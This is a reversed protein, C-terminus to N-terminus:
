GCNSTASRWKKGSPGTPPPKSKENHSSHHTTAQSSKISNPLATKPKPTAKTSLSGKEVQGNPLQLLRQFFAPAATTPYGAAVLLRLGEIDAQEEQSRSYSAIAPGLPLYALGTGFLLLDAVHATVISNRRAIAAKLPHRLTLHAVEHSLVFAVQAENQAASLLGSNVYITGDAM